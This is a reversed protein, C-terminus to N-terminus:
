ASAELIARIAEVDRGFPYDLPVHGHDDMFRDWRAVLAKCAWVLRIVDDDSM